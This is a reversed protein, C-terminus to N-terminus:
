VNKKKIAEFVSAKEDETLNLDIIIDDPSEILEYEEEPIIDLAKEVNTKNM